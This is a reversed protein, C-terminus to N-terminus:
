LKGCVIVSMATGRTQYISEIKWGAEKTMGEFEGLPWERAQILAHMVFDTRYVIPNGEGLNALLIPPPNPIVQPRIAGTEDKVHCAYPAIQDIIVLKTGSIAAEHLRKMIKVNEEFSWNHLVFRLFFVAVDRKIVQSEFFDQGELTVRGSEVMIKKEADAEWTPVTINEITQARDQVVVKIQPAVQAIEFSVSGNGGGVDVVVSNEPLSSWGFGKFISDPSQMTRWGGMAVQFRQLHAPHTECFEWFPKEAGHAVQFASKDIKNIFVDPVFSANKFGYDVSLDVLAAIGNTNIFKKANVRSIAHEGTPNGVIDKLLTMLYGVDKGTDLISSLRNNAFVDPTVEKFIYHAALLRLARSIMSAETGTKAAIDKVHMGEPGADRLLEVACIDTAIRLAGPIHYCTAREYIAAGPLKLTNVLQSAASIALLSADLVEPLRTFQEEPSASNYISDLTPHSIGKSAALGELIEVNENIIAALQRLTTLQSAM